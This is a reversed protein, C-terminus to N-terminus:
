PQERVAHVMATPDGTMAIGVGDLVVGDVVVNRGDLQDPVTGVLTLRGSSTHLIWVGNGLDRRELRGRWTM